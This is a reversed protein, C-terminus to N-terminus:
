STSGNIQLTGSNISFSDGNAIITSPVTGFAVPASGRYASWHTM